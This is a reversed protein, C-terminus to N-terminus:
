LTNNSRYWAITKHLAVKLPTHEALGLETRAKNTDPVYRPPLDPTMIFTQKRIGMGTDVTDIVNQAFDAISIPYESGVNYASGRVGSSLIRILWVCLDSIYLYTRLPRGDGQIKIDHGSIADRVFNGAAFSGHLPMGPGILAFIRATTSIFDSRSATHHNALLWESARKGHAYATNKGTIPPAGNFTEPIKEIDVPQQGYVAGSSLLLFRSVGAADAFDLIRRTGNVISDFLTLQGNDLSIKSVDTAAHICIDFPGLNLIFDSIDGAILKTDSRNFIHPFLNHAREIDRTLVVIEIKSGLTDNARQLVQVLWSGIFGTGGTIFIRAGSFLSLIDQTLTLVLDLDNRPYSISM